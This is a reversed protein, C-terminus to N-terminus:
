VRFYPHLMSRPQDLLWGAGDFEDQLPKDDATFHLQTGVPCELASLRDRLLERVAVVDDAKVDIGSFEVDRSGDAKEDGLGSGAGNIMGVEAQRLASQLPDEYREGRDLPQLSGPLYIYVLDWGNDSEVLLEEERRDPM